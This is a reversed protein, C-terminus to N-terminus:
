HRRLAPSTAALSALSSKYSADTKHVNIQPLDAKGNPFMVGGKWNCEPEDTDEDGNSDYGQDNSNKLRSPIITDEAGDKTGLTLCPHRLDLRGGQKTKMKDSMAYLKNTIDRGIILGLINAVYPEKVCFYALSSRQWFIYRCPEAAVISVQFKEDGQTSCNAEYEPSDMFEKEFVQHLCQGHSMVNVKGSMLLSLRDTKTVNQTAYIEGAHLTMITAYEASVLKKFIHRPVKLPGFLKKYVEDLDNPFKVPRMRYCTLLVQMGNIVMFSFTWSFVDPACLIVWAWASFVLYGILLMIHMLLTGYTTDPSLYGVLMAGHAVQFVVHNAGDWNGLYCVADQTVNTTNQTIGDLESENM